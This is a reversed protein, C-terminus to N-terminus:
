ESDSEGLARDLEKNGLYDLTHEGADKDYRYVWIKTVGRDFTPM